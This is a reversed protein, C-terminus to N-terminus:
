TCNTGEDQRVTEALLGNLHLALRSMGHPIQPSSLAVAALKGLSKRIAGILAM